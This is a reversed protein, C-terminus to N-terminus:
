KGRLSEAIGSSIELWRCLDGKNVTRKVEADLMCIEEKSVGLQKLFEPDGAAHGSERIIGVWVPIVACFRTRKDSLSFPSSAEKFAHVYESGFGLSQAVPACFAFHDKKWKTREFFVDFHKRTTKLHQKYEKWGEPDHHLYVGLSFRQLGAMLMGTGTGVIDCMGGILRGIGIDCIAQDFIEKWEKPDCEKEFELSLHTLAIIASVEHPSMVELVKSIDETEEEFLSLPHYAMAASRLVDGIEPKQELLPNILRAVTDKMSAPRSGAFLNEANRIGRICAAVLPNMKSLFSKSIRIIPAPASSPGQRSSDHHTIKMSRSEPDPERQGDDGTGADTIPHHEEPRGVDPLPEALYESLDEFLREYGMGLFKLPRLYSRVPLSKDPEYRDWKSEEFANLVELASMVVLKRNILEASSIQSDRDICAVVKEPLGRTSLYRIGAKELDFAHERALRYALKARGSEEQKAAVFTEGLYIAAIMDGFRAFLGLVECQEALLPDAANGILRALGSVKLCKARAEEVCEVVEPSEPFRRKDLSQLLENIAAVGLITIMQGPPMINLTDGRAYATSSITKCLELMLVPDRSVLRGLADSKLSTRLLTAHAARLLATNPPISLLNFPDRGERRLPKIEM